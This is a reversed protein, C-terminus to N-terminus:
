AVSKGDVPSVLVEVTYFRGPKWRVLGLSRAERMLESVVAVSEFGLDFRIDEFTTFGHRWVALVCAM